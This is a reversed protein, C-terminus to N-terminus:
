KRLVTLAIQLQLGVVKVVIYKGGLVACCVWWGFVEELNVVRSPARTRDSLM